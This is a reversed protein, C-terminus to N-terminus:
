VTIEKEVRIIPRKGYEAEYFDAYREANRRHKPYVVLSSGDESEFRGIPSEFFGLSILPIKSICELRNVKYFPNSHGTQHRSYKLNGRTTIGFAKKLLRNVNRVQNVENRTENEM